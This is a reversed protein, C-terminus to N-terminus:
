PSLENLIHRLKEPRLNRVMRGSKALSIMGTASAVHLALAESQGTVAIAAQVGHEFQSFREDNLGPLQVGVILIQDAQVITAGHRLESNPGFIELLSEVTLPRDFLL